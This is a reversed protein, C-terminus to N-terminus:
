SRSRASVTGQGDCRPCSAEEYGRALLDAQDQGLDGALHDGADDPMEGKEYARRFIRGDGNCIPCTITGTDDVDDSGFIM